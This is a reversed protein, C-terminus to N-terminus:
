HVVNAGERESERKRGRERGGEREREREREKERERKSGGERERERKRGGEREREKEVEHIKGIEEMKNCYRDRDTTIASYLVPDRCLRTHNCLLLDCYPHSQPPVLHQSQQWPLTFM